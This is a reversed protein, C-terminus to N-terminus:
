AIFISYYSNLILFVIVAPVVFRYYKLGWSPMKIGKGTNCEKLFNDFGWGTRWTVFAAYILAGFPLINYTVIFDELDLITSGEGLPQIWSLLNFGFLCPLGIILIAAFNGMVARRRSTSFLEMSIAIINEFVAILTSLAAFLMFLFFLGGWLAGNAMHSFVSVLTVFILGPGQGPEVGYTFCAPFIVLGSILAVTTDLCLISLGESALTRQSDMYTGFIQIAGIGISLTFFAQAMAASLVEFVRAAGGDTIKSLDPKLYYEIGAAFGDLTFSRMALFFLLAFLLIMLPKTIREVGKRLGMSCVTFAIAVVALMNMLMDSPSALMHGFSQGATAADSNVGFEGTFGKVCYYLMWGTVVSYFSLLVYNGAIMWFKNYHWKSNPSLEEFSRALSRRSARGVALEMMLLPLGLVVLFFIYIFVFIAGGYQGTIYPFRWVNGLGIACGAAILLFGLRSSFHERTAM